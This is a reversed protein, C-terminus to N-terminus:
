CAPAWGKSRRVAASTADPTRGLLAISTAGQEALWRAVLLGLGGFGGTILYTADRASAALRVVRASRTRAARCVPTRIAM